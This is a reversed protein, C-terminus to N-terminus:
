IMCDHWHKQMRHAKERNLLSVKRLTKKARSGYPKSEKRITNDEKRINSCGKWTVSAIFFTSKSIECFECSLVQALTEKKIFDCAQTQLKILFSARNYTNEPSNQM